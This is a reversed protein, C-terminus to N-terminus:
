LDDVPRSYFSRWHASGFRCRSWKIFPHNSYDAAALLQTSSYTGVEPNEHAFSVTPDLAQMEELYEQAGTEISSEQPGYFQIDAHEQRRLDVASVVFLRSDTRLMIEAIASRWAERDLVAEYLGGVFKSLGVDLSM